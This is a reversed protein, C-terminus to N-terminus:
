IKGLVKPNASRCLQNKWTRRKTTWNLLTGKCIKCLKVNNCLKWNIMKHKKPNMEQGWTRMNKGKITNKNKINRSLISGKIKLCSYKSMKSSYVLIFVLVSSTAKETNIENPLSNWHNMWIVKLGTKTIRFELIFVLIVLNHVVGDMPYWM